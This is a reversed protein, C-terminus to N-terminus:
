GPWRAASAGSPSLYETTCESRRVPGLRAGRPLTFSFANLRWPNLRQVRELQDGADGLNFGFQWSVHCPRTNSGWSTPPGSSSRWSGAPDRSWRRSRLRSCDRCRISGAVRTERTRFGPWHGCCGGPNRNRCRRCAPCVASWRHHKWSLPGDRDDLRSVQNIVLLGGEEICSGFGASSGRLRAIRDYRLRAFTRSAGAHRM